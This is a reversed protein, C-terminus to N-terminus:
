FLSVIEVLTFSDQITVRADIVGPLICLDRELLQSITARAGAKEGVAYGAEDANLKKGLDRAKDKIIIYEKKLLEQFEEESHIDSERKLREMNMKVLAPQAEAKTVLLSKIWLSSLWPSYGEKFLCPLEKRGAPLIPLRAITEAKLQLTDKFTETLVSMWMALKDDFDKKLDDTAKLSKRKTIYKNACTLVVVANDWIEKGLKDTLKRMSLIDRSGALFRDNTMSICYLFLDIKGRCKAEIDNLYAEEKNLGDQLGPSDWVVVKIGNVKADFSTVEVTEPKLTTGVKAVEKGLLANVLSSKGAGTKGTIFVNISDSRSWWQDMIDKIFGEQTAQETM